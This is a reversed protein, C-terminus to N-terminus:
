RALGRQILREHEWAAFDAPPRIIEADPRRELRVVRDPCGTVCLGCGICHERSVVPVEGQESIAHVQCREICIGCGQCEDPDIVAYYSSRAVSSEIGWENIGRLLACCCGCCNCVYGRGQMVNSVMHVLGIEEAKDLLALAEQQTIDDPAPPRAVSSFSLCIKKPFECERGLQSQQLRCICDHASFTQSALLVARVDDYPLIWEAKVTGQTPVVRHLAPGPQMIGAAGGEAMYEEVLHALEHDIAGVQSEYIGVIFPALRFCHKGERKEYWVLGRRAMQILQSMAQKVPLGFRQAIGDVPELASGLQGALTAEEVSFIKNLVRLEIGSATRPFGNPLRDLADALREYIDTQM